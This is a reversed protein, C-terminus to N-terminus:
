TAQEGTREQKLGIRGAPAGGTGNANPYIVRELTLGRAPAARGALAREGAHLL